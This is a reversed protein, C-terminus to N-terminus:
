PSVTANGDAILPGTSGGSCVGGNAMATGMPAASSSIFANGVDTGSAIVTWNGSTCSATIDFTSTVDSDFTMCAADSYFTVTYSGVGLLSFNGAMADWTLTHSGNLGSFATASQSTPTIGGIEICGCANIGSLVVTITGSTPCTPTPTIDEIVIEEDRAPIVFTLAPRVGVDFGVMGITPPRRM